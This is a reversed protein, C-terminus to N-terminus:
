TRKAVRSYVFYSLAGLAISGIPILGYFIIFLSLHYTLFTVGEGYFFIIEGITSLSLFVGVLFKLNGRKESNVRFTGHVITDAILGLGIILFPIFYYWIQPAYPSM